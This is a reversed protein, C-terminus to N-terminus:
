TVFVLASRIARVTSSKGCSISMGLLEDASVVASAACNSVSAYKFGTGADENRDRPFSCIRVSRLSDSIKLAAAGVSM